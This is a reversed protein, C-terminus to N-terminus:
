RGGWRKVCAVEDFAAEAHNNFPEGDRVHSVHTLECAAGRPFEYGVAVRGTPNRGELADDLKVGAGLEVYLGPM